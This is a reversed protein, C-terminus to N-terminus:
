SSSFLYIELLISHVVLSIRAIAVPVVFAAPNVDSRFSNFSSVFSWVCLCLLLLQITSKKLKSCFLNQSVPYLLM